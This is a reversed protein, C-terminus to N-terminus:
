YLELGEPQPRDRVLEGTEADVTRKTAPTGQHAFMDAVTKKGTAPPVKPGNAAKPEPKAEPQPPEAKAPQAGQEFGKEAAAQSAADLPQAAPEPAQPQKEPAKAPEPAPLAAPANAEALLADFRGLDEPRDNEPDEGPIDVQIPGYKSLKRLLTKKCMEDEATQWPSDSQDFNRSYQQGWALLEEKSAVQFDFGGDKTKYYAYFTTVAGRERMAPVHKLHANLGYEYEFLDNECVEHATITQFIETRYMLALLGKYGIMFKAELKGSKRNNFPVIAGYGLAGNPDLGLEAATGLAIVMSAKDCTALKPNSIIAKMAMRIFRDPDMGRPLLQQFSRAKAMLFDAMTGNSRTAGIKEAAGTGKANM